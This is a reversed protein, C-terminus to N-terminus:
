RPREFSWTSDAIHYTTSSTFRPPVQEISLEIGAPRALAVPTPRSSAIRHAVRPGAPAIM